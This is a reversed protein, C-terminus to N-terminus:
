GPRPWCPLYGLTSDWQWGVWRKVRELDGHCSNERVPHLICSFFGTGEDALDELDDIPVLGDLAYVPSAEM